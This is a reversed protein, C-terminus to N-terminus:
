SLEQEVTLSKLDIKKKDLLENLIDDMQALAKKARSAIDIDKKLSDISLAQAWSRFIEQIGKLNLHFEKVEM